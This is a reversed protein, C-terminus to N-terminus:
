QSWLVAEYEAEDARKKFERWSEIKLNKPLEFEGEVNQPGFYKISKIHRLNKQAIPILDAKRNSGLDRWTSLTRQSAAFSLKSDFLNLYFFLATSRIINEDM